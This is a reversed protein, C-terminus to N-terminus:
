WIIAPRARLCLSACPLERCHGSVCVAAWSGCKEGCAMESNLSIKRSKVGWGVWRANDIKMGSFFFFFFNYVCKKKEPMRECELWLNCFSKKKNKKNKRLCAEQSHLPPEDSVSHHLLPNDSTFPFFSLRHRVALANSPSSKIRSGNGGTSGRMM